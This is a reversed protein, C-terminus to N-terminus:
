GGLAAVGPEGAAEIAVLGDLMEDLGQAYRVRLDATDQDVSGWGVPGVQDLVAVEDLDERGRGASGGSGTEDEVGV